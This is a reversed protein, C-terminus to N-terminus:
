FTKGCQKGECPKEGNHSREHIRLFSPYILAKEYKQCKYPLDGTHTTGHKKSFNNAVHLSEWM